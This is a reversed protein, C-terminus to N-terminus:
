STVVRHFTTGPHWFFDLSRPFLYGYLTYVVMVLNIWFLIPHALRTLEMVLLFMLLGVIFDHRTYTGQSYIAIREYESLFYGFAYACVAIYLTVLVVNAAPPLRKYLPEQQRMFLIQLVLAFPILSAALKLAGGLGTYFYWVLWVTFVVSVAFILNGLNVQAKVREILM